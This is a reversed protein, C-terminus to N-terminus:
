AAERAWERLDGVLLEPAELASFHGGHAMATWRTIAAYGKEAQSRPPWPHLPDPFRAFATPVEIRRGEPLTRLKAEQAASYFRISSPFAGTMVYIMITDLLEDRDFVDEFCRERLDAWDHYRELIWAAQAVPDDGVVWSLSQPKSGQLHRYGGKEREIGEMAKAWAMEEASEPPAAPAPFMMTLHIAHLSGPRELALLGTVLAGWDGGHAHYRAYGLVNRMLRDFLLATQRQDVTKEPKASFGFNPLSPVVVDFADEARGGHRSPFALPEIVKWFERHSGPWGHTMLLPRRGEAEGVVHVFHLDVGDVEATFQPFRNLRDVAARWDYRETWTRCFDQLFAADCGYRWGEGKPVPPFRYARVRALVDEVEAASWNM